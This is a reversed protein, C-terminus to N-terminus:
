SERLSRLTVATKHRRRAYDEVLREHEVIGDGHGLALIQRLQGETARRGILRFHELLADNDIEDLADLDIESIEEYSITQEGSM